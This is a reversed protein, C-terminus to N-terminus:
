ILGILFKLILPNRDWFESKAIIAPIAIPLLFTAILTNWFLTCFDKPLGGNFMFKYYRALFSNEKLEM